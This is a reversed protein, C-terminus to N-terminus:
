NSYCRFSVEIIGKLWSDERVAPTTRSIQKVYVVVNNSVLTLDGKFHDYVADLQTLLEASGRDTPYFVDIQYIGTNLQLDNMDMLDSSAMLVTPRMYPTKYVPVSRTNEWAISVGGALANLRTDLAIQIDKFFSM